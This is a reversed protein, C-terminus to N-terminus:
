NSARFSNVDILESRNIGFSGLERAGLVPCRLFSDERRSELRELRIPVAWVRKMWDSELGNVVDDGVNLFALHAVPNVVIALTRAM